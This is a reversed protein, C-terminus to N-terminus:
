AVQGPPHRSPERSRAGSAAQRAGTRATRAGCRRGRCGARADRRTQTWAPGARQTEARRERRAVRDSARRWRRDTPSGGVRWM